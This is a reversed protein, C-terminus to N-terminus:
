VSRSPHDVSLGGGAGKIMDLFNERMKAVAQPAAVRNSIEFTHRATSYEKPIGPWNGTDIRDVFALCISAALFPKSFEFFHVPNDPLTTFKERYYRYSSMLLDRGADTRGQALMLYGQMLAAPLFNVCAISPIDKDALVEDVYRTLTDNFKSRDNSALYLHRLITFLSSRLLSRGRRPHESEELTPTQILLDEAFTVARAQACEDDFEIARYGYIVAAVCRHSLDLRYYELVQGTLFLKTHDSKPRYINLFLFKEFEQKNVPFLKDLDWFKSFTLNAEKATVDVRRLPTNRPFDEMPLVLAIQWNEPADGAWPATITFDDPYTATKGLTSDDAFTFVIKLLTSKSTESAANLGIIIEDARVEGRLDLEVM